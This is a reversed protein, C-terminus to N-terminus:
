ATVPSAQSGNDGFFDKFTGKVSKCVSMATAIVAAVEAATKLLTTAKRLLNGWTFGASETNGSLEERLSEAVEEAASKTTAAAEQINEATPEQMAKRVRIRVNPMSSTSRVTENLSEIVHAGINIYECFKSIKSFLSQM